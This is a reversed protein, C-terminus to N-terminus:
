LNAIRGIIRSLLTGEKSEAIESLEVPPSNLMEALGSCYAASYFENIENQPVKLVRHAFVITTPHKTMMAAMQFSNFNCPLRTLNPWHKMHVVDTLSLGEMLRGQSAYYASQWMLEDINRGVGRKQSTSQVDKDKIERVKLENAPTRCFGPFDNIESHYEGQETFVLLEGIRDHVVSINKKKAIAKQLIGLLYDQANFKEMLEDRFRYNLPLLLSAQIQSNNRAINLVPLFERFTKHAPSPENIAM